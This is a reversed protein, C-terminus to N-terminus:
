PKYAKRVSKEWAAAQKKFIYRFFGVYMSINMATIYYPIFLIKLRTKKLNMGLGIGSLLYFLSQSGLFLNYSTSDWAAQYALYINLTLVFPLLLPVFCWRLVKHSIYQWSFLPHKLCNLYNLNRFFFQFGGAAIRVKRKMEEAINVSAAETAVAEKCFSIKHGLRAIATSVAFDDIIVDKKQIPYLEKRIAFLEGAAGMTSHVKHEYYKTLSEYDWYYSEGSSAAHDKSESYIRKMGSVCGVKPNSFDNAINLLAAKNLITNADSFVILSDPAHAVGRNMAAMKGERKEQHLVEIEPYQQLLELSRDTTGDTVWILNLKNKPYDLELTNMVKQEIIEEENFAIVMFTIKPLDEEMLKVPRTKPKFVSILVLLLLYGAYAYLIISVSIWFLTQAM